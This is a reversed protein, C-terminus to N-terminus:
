LLGLHKLAELTPGEFNMTLVNGVYGIDRMGEPTTYFGGAVVYKLRAFDYAPKKFVSSKGGYAVDDAILHLKEQTLKPLPDQVM